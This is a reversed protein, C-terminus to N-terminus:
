LYSWNHKREVSLHYKIQRWHYSMTMILCSQLFSGLIPFHGLLQSFSTSFIYASNLIHYLLLYFLRSSMRNAQFLIRGRKNLLNEFKIFLWFLPLGWILITCFLNFQVQKTLWRSRYNTFYTLLSCLLFSLIIGGLVGVSTASGKFCIIQSVPLKVFSEIESITFSPYIVVIPM